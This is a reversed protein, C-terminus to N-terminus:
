GGDRATAFTKRSLVIECPMGHRQSSSSLWDRARESSLTQTAVTFSQQAEDLIQREKVAALLEAMEVMGAVDGTQELWGVRRTAWDLLHRLVAGNQRCVEKADDPWGKTMNYYASRETRVRSLPELRFAIGRSACKAALAAIDDDTWGDARGEYSRGDDPELTITRISAPLKDIFPVAHTAPSEEEGSYFMDDDGHELWRLSVIDCENFACLIRASMWPMDVTLRRLHPLRLTLRDDFDGALYNVRLDVVNPAM